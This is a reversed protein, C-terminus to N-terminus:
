IGSIKERAGRKFTCNELIFNIRDNLKGIQHFAINLKEQMEWLQDQLVAKESHALPNLAEVKPEPMPEGLGVANRFLKYYSEYIAGKDKAVQGQLVKISEEDRAEVALSYQIEFEKALSELANAHGKLETASCAQAKALRTCINVVKPQSVTITAESMTHEKHLPVQMSLAAVM